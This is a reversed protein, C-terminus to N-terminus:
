KNVCTCPLQLVRRDIVDTKGESEGEHVVRMNCWRGTDKISCCIVFTLCVDTPIADRACLLLPVPHDCTRVYLNARKSDLLYKTDRYNQALFNPKRTLTIFIDTCNLNTNSCLKIHWVFCLWVQFM